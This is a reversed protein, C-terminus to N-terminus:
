VNFSVRLPLLFHRQSFLFRTLKHLEFNLMMERKQIRFRELPRDLHFYRERVINADSRLDDLLVIQGKQTGFLMKM